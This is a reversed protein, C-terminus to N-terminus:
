AIYNINSQYLLCNEVMYLFVYKPQNQHKKSVCLTSKALLETKDVCTSLIVNSERFVDLCLWEFLLVLLM